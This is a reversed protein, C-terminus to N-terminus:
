PGRLISLSEEGHNCLLDVISLHSVFEGFLQDYRPHDYAQFRVEVGARAFQELDMYDRGGSGALYTDAGFHRALAILRGDPDEPMRGLSSALHIPTSIGLLSALGKVACVNLESLGQWPVAYLERFFGDLRAWHPARRYNVLLSQYHKRQWHAGCVGVESIRQPHRFSVPVTLWQPGQAGKIRNRNQWENKKYQVTDLLVFVDARSIKDFYGLWPLYQPQHAAVIM